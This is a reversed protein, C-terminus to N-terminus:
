EPPFVDFTYLVRGVRKAPLPRDPADAYEINAFLSEPMDAFLYVRVRDGSLQFRKHSQEDFIGADAAILPRMASEFLDKESVSSDYGFGYNYAYQQWQDAQLFSQWEFHSNQAPV